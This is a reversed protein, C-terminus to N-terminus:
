KHVAFNLTISTDVATPMGNMLYPKYTWTSVAETASNSLLDDPSAIVTLQSVTGEKTIVVSLVVSGSMRLIKALKPYQPEKKTLNAGSLLAAPVRNTPPTAGQNKSIELPTLYDLEKVKATLAVRGGYELTFQMPIEHGGFKRFDSRRLVFDDGHIETLQNLNNFCYAPGATASDIATFRECADATGTITAPVIKLKEKSITKSFPSELSNLAQLVLYRERVAQTSPLNDSGAYHLDPSEIVQGPASVAGWRETATGTSVQHGVLDHLEYDIHVEFPQTEVWRLTSHQVAQRYQDWPDREPAPQQAHLVALPAALLLIATLRHTKM